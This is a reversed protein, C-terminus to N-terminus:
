ASAEVALAPAPADRGEKKRFPIDRRWYTLARWVWEVPGYRFHRLWIAAAWLQLGIAVLGVTLRTGQSWDDWLGLGFGYFVPVFVLSQLLYFSLTLRGAGALPRLLARAPGQYLACLLLLWVTMGSLEFWSGLLADFPRGAAPDYGQAAFWSKLDDRFFHLFLAVAAAIVFAIARARAFEGLRAFFGTRGLVMGVLYLGLIQSVRGSELMFWWKPLQGEWLNIRLHELLSGSRVYTEIAPDVWHHPKQLAWEAGAMAGFLQALLLPSLFCLAAVGALIRNDRVRHAILLLLGMGALLQIIDGRYVLAHLFGIAQLILLRWAFRLSFDSGRQAARDMLIFFSFGFCLALLSFSKGMFLLYVTDRIAGPQPKFWDLEYSEIMHVLFLAMLAFGRVVDM